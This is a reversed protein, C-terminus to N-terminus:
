NRLFKKGCMEQGGKITNFIPNRKGYKCIILHNYTWTLNISVFQAFCAAICPFAWRCIQTFDYEPIGMRNQWATRFFDFMHISIICPNLSPQIIHCGRPNFRVLPFPGESQLYTSVAKQSLVAPIDDTSYQNGTSVPLPLKNLGIYLM